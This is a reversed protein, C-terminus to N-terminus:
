SSLKEASHQRRQVQSLFDKLIPWLRQPKDDFVARAFDSKVGKQYSEVASLIASDINGQDQFSKMARACDTKQFELVMLKAFEHDLWDITIHGLNDHLWLLGEGRLLQQRELKLFDTVLVTLNNEQSKARRLALNKLPEAAAAALRQECFPRSKQLFLDFRIWYLDGCKIGDYRELFSKRDLKIFENFFLTPYFHPMELKRLFRIYINALDEDKIHEVARHVVETHASDELLSAGPEPLPITDFAYEIAGAVLDDPGSEMRICLAEDLILELTMRYVPTLDLVEGFHKAADARDLDLLNLTAPDIAYIDDFLDPLDADDREVLPVLQRAPMRESSQMLLSLTDFLSLSQPM